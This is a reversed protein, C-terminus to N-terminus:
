KENHERYFDISEKIDKTLEVNNFIEVCWNYFDKKSFDKNNDIYKFKGIFYKFYKLVDKKPYKAVFEPTPQIAYGHRTSEIRIEYYIDENYVYAIRIYRYPSIVCDLNDKKLGKKHLERLIKNDKYDALVDEFVTVKKPYFHIYYITFGCLLYLGAGILGFTAYFYWVHPCFFLFILFISGLIFYLYISRKRSRTISEYLSLNKEKDNFMKM